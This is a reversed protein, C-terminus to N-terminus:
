MENIEEALGRVISYNVVLSPKGMLLRGYEIRSILEKQYLNKNEEKLFDIEVQQEDLSVELLHIYDKMTDFQKMLNPQDNRM